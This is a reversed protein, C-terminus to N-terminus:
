LNRQVKGEERIWFQEASKGDSSLYDDVVNIATKFFENSRRPYARARTRRWLRMLQEDEYRGSALAIFIDRLEILEAKSGSEPLNGIGLLILYEHTADYDRTIDVVGAAWEFFLPPPNPQSM